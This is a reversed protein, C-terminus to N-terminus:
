PSQNINPLSFYFAAGENPVAEAWVTGHHKDIIRHVVALGVGTGEFEETSHLRHFVGFLKPYYEMDFGVGNDKIYYVNKDEKKNCGIYIISKEKKSSYKIANSILNVWVQKILTADGSAPPLIQITIDVKNEMDTALFDRVIFKVMSNMNIDTSVLEKKGLRAFALLDDILLGMKKSNRLITDLIKKADEVLKDKYDETMIKAYSQIARLPARLDHSVSYSFAELEKNVLVLQQEAAKRNSIDMSIALLCPVGEVEMTLLSTSLWLVDGHKTCASMEVNKVIQKEQLLVTFDPHQEPQTGLNLEKVTKDLLEKKSAFGFSNLFAKNVNIIRDDDQRFIIISAPNYELFDYFLDVNKKLKDDTRKRETVDEARHIIYKINKANDFVPMNLQSWYREEFGNEQYRRHSNGYKQVEMTNAAKEKLVRELSTRLNKIGTAAPDNPDDPFIDFIGKGTIENRKTNTAKLYADSAGRITFYPPNPELVLFLGPASEFLVRFDVDTKALFEKMM